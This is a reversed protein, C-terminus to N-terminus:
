PKLSLKTGALQDKGREKKQKIIIDAGLGV